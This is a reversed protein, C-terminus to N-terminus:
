RAGNAKSRATTSAARLRWRRLTVEHQSASSSIKSGCAYRWPLSRFPKLSASTPLSIAATASCRWASNAHSQAIADLATSAAAICSPPARCTVTTSHLWCNPWTKGARDPTRGRLNSDAFMKKAGLLKPPAVTTASCIARNSAAVEGQCCNTNVDSGGVSVGRVAQEPVLRLLGRHKADAQWVLTRGKLVEFVACGQRQEVGHELADGRVKHVQM